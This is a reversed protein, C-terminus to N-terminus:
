TTREDGHSVGDVHRWTTWGPACIAGCQRCWTVHAGAACDACGVYVKSKRHALGTPCTEHRWTWDRQVFFRTAIAVVFATVVVAPVFVWWPIM